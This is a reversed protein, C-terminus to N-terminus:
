PSGPVALDNSTDRAGAGARVLAQEVLAKVQDLSFPKTLVADISKARTENIGVRDAYGTMLVLFTNPWRLKIRAAAEIGSIGPLGIDVMALVFSQQEAEALGSEGDETVKVAYGHQALLDSLVDRVESSDDIVLIRPRAEHVPDAGAPLQPEPEAPPGVVATIPLSLTFEAGREGDSSVVVQGSHRRVTAYARSLDRVNGKERMVGFVPDFLR